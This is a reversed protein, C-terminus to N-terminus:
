VIWLLLAVLVGYIAIGEALGVYLISRGFLEPRETITALAAEGTRAVAFGAAAAAGAVSVAMAMYKMGEAFEAPGEEEAASAPLIITAFALICVLMTIPLIKAYAKATM